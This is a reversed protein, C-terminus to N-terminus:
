RQLQHIARSLARAIISAAAANPHRDWNSVRWKEPTTKWFAGNTAFDEQLSIAPIHSARLKEMLGRFDPWVVVEFVIGRAEFEELCKKLIAVHLETASPNVLLPYLTEILTSASILRAIMEGSSSPLQRIYRAEGHALEYEPGMSFYRCARRPHDQITLFFAYIKDYNRTLLGFPIRGSEIMGLVQHAGYGSM